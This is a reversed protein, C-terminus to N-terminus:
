SKKEKADSRRRSSELRTEKKFSSTGEPVDRGERDTGKRSSGGGGSDKQIDTKLMKSGKQAPEIRKM